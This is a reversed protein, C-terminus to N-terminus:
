LSSAAANPRVISPNRDSGRLQIPVLVTASCRTSAFWFGSKVMMRVLVFVVCVIQPLSIGNSVDQQSLSVLRTMM